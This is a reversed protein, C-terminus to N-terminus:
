PKHHIIRYAKPTMHYREKFIRHFYSTNDYGVAEIISEVPMNTLTLYHTAQNLRRSQLFEKFTYHSHKKILKSIYYPPQNVTSAFHELTATRYNDEIYKLATFVLNQEYQRPDNQNITDTHNLLHLFVLGMTVQNLTQSNPHKFAVSWIMNEMLNQIPLVDKTHFHMYNTMSASNQMISLILERMITDAYLSALSHKFFEPLIMFSVAIDHEGAPLIEQAAYPSLILIEGKELTVKATENILHTTSGMCVYILEVYSHMHKPVHVFRTHLRVGILHGQAITEHNDASFSDEALSPNKQLQTNEDLIACEKPTIKLLHALLEQDM